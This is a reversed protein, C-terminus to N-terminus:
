NGGGGRTIPALQNRSAALGHVLRIQNVSKQRAQLRSFHVPVHFIYIMNKSLKGKSDALQGRKQYSGVPQGRNNSLKGKSDALQGRKTIPPM